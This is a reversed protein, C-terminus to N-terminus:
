VLETARNAGRGPWLRYRLALPAGAGVAVGAYFLIVYLVSDAVAEMGTGQPFLVERLLLALNMNRMTAEIGVALCDPRSWGRLRFPLMSLQQMLVCLAIVAAQGRWGYAGPQVQGSAFSGAVMVAVLVFGPWICCRAILRRQLPLFHAVALGLALPLLLCGGVEVLVRGVPMEFDDAIYHPVLLRLLIPVTAICAFTGITTLTISLALNGRGLYAFVKSLNGGPLCAVLVLGVAIGGGVGSVEIVLVALVPALVLQGLLGVGLFLPRRVIRAFDHLRLTAGMGLMFCILQLQALHHQHRLFTDLMTM